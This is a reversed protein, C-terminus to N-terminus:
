QQRTRAGPRVIRTSAANLVSVLRRRYRGKVNSRRGNEDPQAYPWLLYVVHNEGMQMVVM